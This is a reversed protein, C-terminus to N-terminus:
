RHAGFHCAHPGWQAACEELDLLQAQGKAADLGHAVHAERDACSLDERHDTRVARALCREQIEDCAHEVGAAAADAEIAVLDRAQCPVVHHALANGARELVDLQEFARRHQLVQQEAAM